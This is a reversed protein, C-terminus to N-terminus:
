IGGSLLAVFPNIDGFSLAGFTGDGNIDGNEPPCDPYTAAWSAYNSLYLVFPNIDGFSLYGYTGDCNMDGIAANTVTIGDTYAFTDYGSVNRAVVTIYYTSGVSLSLGGITQEFSDVDGTANLVWDQTNGSGASTGVRTWYGAICGDSENATAVFHLQTTSATTAGDDTATVNTPATADPGIIGDTVGWTDYGEVNRAVVTVYYTTNAALSLGAITYDFTTQNNAAHQVWDQENGANPATGVRTWYSAISSDYDDANAVIHIQSASSQCGGDDVVTCYDPADTDGIVSVYITTATGSEAPELLQWASDSRYHGATISYSGLVHTNYGVQETTMWINRSTRAPIPTGDGDSGLQGVDEGGPGRLWVYLSNLDYSQSGYNKVDYSGRGYGGWYWTGAYRDTGTSLGIFPKSIGQNMGHVLMQGNLQPHWDWGRAFWGNYFEQISYVNHGSPLYNNSVDFIENSGLSTWDYLDTADNRSDGLDLLLALVASETDYGTRGAGVSQNDSNGNAASYGDWNADCDFHILNDPNNDDYYRDNGQASCSYWTAWGETWALGTTYHGTLSHPGGSGPPWDADGYISDMVDHGFEHMIVDPSNYDMEALHIHNDGTTYYTGDVSGDYWSVHTFHTDHGLDYYGHAWARSMYDHVEWARETSDAVGNTGWDAFWSGANSSGGGINSFLVGTATSYYDGSSNEVQGDGHYTRFQVYVDATGSELGGDSDNDFSVTWYGNDAAVTSGLLDDGSFTDSDWLVVQTGYGAHLSGDGHRYSWYGYVTATADTGNGVHRDEPTLPRGQPDTKIEDLSTPPPTSWEAPIDAPVISETGEVLEVPAALVKEAAEAFPRASITVGAASADIYLTRRKGFRYSDDGAIASVSVAYRGPQNFTASAAFQQPEGVVLATQNRLASGQSTMEPPFQFEIETDSVPVPETLTVTLVLQIAQGLAPNGVAVLEAEMPAIPARAEAANLPSSAVSLACLGVTMWRIRGFM